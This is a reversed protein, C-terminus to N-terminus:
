KRVLRVHKLSSFVSALFKVKLGFTYIKCAMWFTSVYSLTTNGKRYIGSSLWTVKIDAFYM